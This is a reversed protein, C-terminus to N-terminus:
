RISNNALTPPIARRTHRSTAVRLHNRRVPGGLFFPSM